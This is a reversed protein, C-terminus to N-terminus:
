KRYQQKAGVMHVCYRLGNVTVTRCIGAPERRTDERAPYLTVSEFWNRLVRIERCLERATYETKM